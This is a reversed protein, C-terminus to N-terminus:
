FEEFDGAKQSARVQDLLKDLKGSKADREIAEDFLREDLEDLFARLKIREDLSLTEIAETIEEMKGM